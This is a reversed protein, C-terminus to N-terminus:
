TMPIALVVGRRVLEETFERQNAIGEKLIATIKLRAADDLPRDPGDRGEAQGQHRQIDAFM